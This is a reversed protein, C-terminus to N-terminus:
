TTSEGKWQVSSTFASAMPHQQQLNDGNGTSSIRSVALKTGDFFGYVVPVPSGKQKIAGCYRDM